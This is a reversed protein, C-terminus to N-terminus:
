VFIIIVQVLAENHAKTKLAEQFIMETPSFAVILCGTFLFLLIFGCAGYSEFSISWGMVWLQKKVLGPAM